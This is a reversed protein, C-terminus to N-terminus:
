VIVKVNTNESQKEYAYLGYFVAPFVPFSFLGQVIVLPFWKHDPRWVFAGFYYYVIPIIITIGIAVGNRLFFLILLISYVIWVKAGARIGSLSRQFDREEDETLKRMSGGRSVLYSVTNLLAFIKGYVQWYQIESTLKFTAM